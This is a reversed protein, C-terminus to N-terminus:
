YIKIHGWYGWDCAPNDAPGPYLAFVLPGSIPGIAGLSITQLGRDGPQTLPNLDRRYLIRRHGSPLIEFIVVEIGDTPTPGAYAADNLGVTAEIRTAGPPAHFHLESPANAFIVQHGALNDVVITWPNFVAFPVPSAVEAYRSPDVKGQLLRQDQREPPNSFDLMVGPYSHGALKSQLSPIVGAPLYLDGEASRAVPAASLNLLRTRWGIFGTNQKYTEQMVLASIQGAPINALVARLADADEERGNPVMIARRQAYCPILTNWDWGYVLVIGDEPTSRRIIEALPPPSPPPRMLTDAYGVCFNGAQLGFFGLVATSKIVIGLRRTEMVGALVIGAAAAAFFASPFWYYEHIAYLNSFLLPGALFGFSCVLAARRYHPAIVVFGAALLILAPGCLVGVTLQHFLIKWFAPDVRQLAAGYNWSTLNGSTLTAAFPNARKVSDSFAIWWVAAALASGAQLASAVMVRLLGAPRPDAPTARGSKWLRYLTYFVAPLGFLAFTTIKVLAALVGMVVTLATWRWDPQQLSRIHAYLFWVALATACSEIMFSRSYFLCVPATLVAAPVLLRCRWDPEVRIALGYVAPLSALFFAIGLIRAASVLSIGAADSFRAVLWQYLPFELPVSWPPGFVPLPYALHFGEKQLWHASMATQTQRFQTRDLLSADWARTMVWLAALLLLAALLPLLWRRAALNKLTPSTAPPEMKARGETVPTVLRPAASARM